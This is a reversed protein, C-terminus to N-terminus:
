KIKEEHVENHVKKLETEGRPSKIKKAAFRYINVVILVGIIDAVVDYLDSTRGPVFAQHIEDMVAYISGAILTLLYWYKRWNIGSSYVFARRLLFEFVSFEIIHAFKDQMKFGLDPTSLSSISSQIFIALIWLIAPFQYLLFNRLKNSETNEM